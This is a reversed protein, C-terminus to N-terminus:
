REGYPWWQPTSVTSLRGHSHMVLSSGPEAPANDAHQETTDRVGDVHRVHRYRSAADWACALLCRGDGMTLFSTVGAQPATVMVALTLVNESGHGFDRRADTAEGLAAM